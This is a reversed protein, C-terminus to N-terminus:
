QQVATCCGSRGTTYWPYSIPRIGGHAAERKRERERQRDRSSSSSSSSVRVVVYLLILYGSIYIYM